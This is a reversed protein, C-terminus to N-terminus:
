EAPANAFFELYGCATCRSGTILYTRTGEEILGQQFATVPNWPMQSEPVYFLLKSKTGPMGLDGILGKASTFGRETAAGCKPCITPM